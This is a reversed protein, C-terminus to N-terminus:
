QSVPIPYAPKFTGIHKRWRIGRAVRGRCGKTVELYERFERVTMDGKENNCPRCALVINQGNKGGKSRPQKHEKTPYFESSPDDWDFACQCYYCRRRGRSIHRNPKHKPM